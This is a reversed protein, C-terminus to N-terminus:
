VHSKSHLSRDRMALYEEVEGKIGESFSRPRYGFDQTADAYSFAKDEGMRMVQEVSVRAKSSVRNYIKAAVLSLSMPLRVLTNSKGLAGSVTRVLDIYRIAEKGGLNYQRNNTKNPNVLVDYYANGLDRAHVPQMLNCGNGFIPFFKHRYLYDILKYMNQDRASGYIMTPRLITVEIKQSLTSIEDEIKIYGAAASKFKSFRGTTHVLIARKVNNRIASELLCKSLRVGAIHVVTEVGRTIQNVFAPDTLDGYAASVKLGSKRFHELESSRRLTLLLPETYKEKVLRQALWHGTHGSIGTVLVM